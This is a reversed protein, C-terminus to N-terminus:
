CVILEMCGKFYDLWAQRSSESEISATSPIPGRKQIVSFVLIIEVTGELDLTGQNITAFMDQNM